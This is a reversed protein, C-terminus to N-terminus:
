QSIGFKTANRPRIERARGLVAVPVGKCAIAAAATEHLDSDPSLAYFQELTLKRDRVVKQKGARGDARVVLNEGNWTITTSM